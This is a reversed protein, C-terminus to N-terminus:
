SYLKTLNGTHQVLLHFTNQTMSATQVATVRGRGYTTFAPSVSIIPINHLLHVCNFNFDLEFPISFFTFDWDKILSQARFIYPPLSTYRYVNKVGLTSSPLHHVEHGMQNSQHISFDKGMNSFSGKNATNAQLRAVTSVM